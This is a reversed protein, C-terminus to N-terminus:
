EERRPSRDPLKITSRDLVPAQMSVVQSVLRDREIVKTQYSFQTIELNSREQVTTPTQLLTLSLLTYILLFKM